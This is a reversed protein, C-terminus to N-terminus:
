CCSTTIGAAEMGRNVSARLGPQQPNRLLSSGGQRPWIRCGPSSNPNRRVTMSSSSGAWRDAQIPWSPTSAAGPKRWAAISRSSSMSSSERPLPPAPRPSPLYDQIDLPKETLIAARRGSASTTFCRIPPPRPISIPMISPMSAPIRIACNRRAPSCTICCRICGAPASTATTNPMGPATSSVPKPRATGGPRPPHFAADPRTRRRRHRPIAGHYWDPDFFGEMSRAIMRKGRDVDARGRSAAATCRNPWERAASRHLLRSFVAAGSRATARVPGVRPALRFREPGDSM